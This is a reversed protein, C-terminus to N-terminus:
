PSGAGEPPTARGGRVVAREAFAPVVPRLMRLTRGEDTEYLQSRLAERLMSATASGGEIARAVALGALYGRVAMRTPEDGHARRYRVAFSDRPAGALAYDSLFLTAGELAERAERPQGEPDLDDFGYLKVGRWGSAIQPAVIGVTRNPALLVLFRPNKAKLAAIPKTVDVGSELIREVGVIGIGAKRCADSVALARISDEPTAAVLLGATGRASERALQQALATAAPGIGVTLQFVGEGLTALRENTASPSLLVAGIVQTASALPATNATFLEGVIVSVGHDKLLWRAKKAGVLPDGESDHLILHIAPLWERNHEEAALRLGNVFTKGYREYRGSLPVVVGIRTLGEAARKVPISDLPADELPALLAQLMKREPAKPGAAALGLRAAWLREAARTPPDLRMIEPLSAYELAWAPAEAARPDELLRTKLYGPRGLPFKKGSPPAAPSAPPPAATAAPAAFAAALAFGLAVAAVIPATRRDARTM